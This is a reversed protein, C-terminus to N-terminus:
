GEAEVRDLWDSMLAEFVRPQNSPVSHGSRDLIAHTARPFTELMSLMDVYGAMADQRGSLIVTPKDFRAIERVDFSFTPRAEVREIFEMDATAIAPAITERYARLADASQVVARELWDRQDEGLSAAVAEDRVLVQHEPTTRGTRLPNAVILAAGDCQAARRHIVGMALYGGWSTGGVIFREGPAVADLFELTVELIDDQSEIWDAGPTEGRGPLDPYLRRWGPHREFVPELEAIMHRRDTVVGHIILAPRGEGREEYAIQIGRIEITKAGV